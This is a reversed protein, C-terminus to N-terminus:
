SGARAHKPTTGAQKGAIEHVGGKADITVAVPKVKSGPKVKGSGQVIVRDGAKLGSTVRWRHNRTAAAITLQRKEVKDDDNVVLATPGSATNREVAQQPVLLANVDIGQTLRARVYMGPLLLHDPNPVLARLMISGTDPDVEVGSFELKGQLHVGIGAAPSVIVPATNEADTELAGSALAQRLLLYQDASERIDVYIPDLRNITALAESQNATVLAGATVASAGIIGSIPAKIQTYGLDIRASKLNAKATAVNAKNQALEAVANDRDQKSIADIKALEQYRHALPAASKVAAKAQALQAKAQEVAAQYHAPDIKYLVDGADVHEGEKFLRKKIIGDVQPRVESTTYARTRGPLNTTVTYPELKVQYVGVTIAAQTHAPKQSESCGAVALACVAVIAISLRYVLPM